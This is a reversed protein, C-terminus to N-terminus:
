LSDSQLRILDLFGSADTDQSASVLGQWLESERLTAPLMPEACRFVQALAEFYRRDWDESKLAPRKDFTLGHDVMGQLHPLMEQELRDRQDNVLGAMSAVLTAHLRANLAPTHSIRTMVSLAPLMRTLKAMFQKGLAARNAADAAKVQQMLRAVEAFQSAIDDVRGFSVVVEDQLRRAQRKMSVLKAEETVREKQLDALTMSAGSVSRSPTSASVQKSMNAHLPTAVLTAIEQRLSQNEAHQWALPVVTFVATLLSVKVFTNSTLASFTLAWPVSSGGAAASLVAVSLSAQAPLASQAAVAGTILALASSRVGSRQLKAGLSQVARSVRKRVAAENMGLDMAMEAYSREQFYHLVLIQRESPSLSQLARELEEWRLDVENRAEHLASQEHRQIRRREADWMRAGTYSAAQYLWGALKRHGTLLSARRALSVFVTQAVDKAAELNGTRRLAAGIVLAEYQRVLQTFAAGDRQRVFRTLLESDTPTSTNMTM